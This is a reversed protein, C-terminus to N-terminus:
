FGAVMTGLPILVLGLLVAMLEREVFPAVVLAAIFGIVVTPLAEMMELLPKIRSRQRPAMFCAVHIACGLGLPVAFLLGVLAAK